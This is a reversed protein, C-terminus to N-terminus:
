QCRAVCNYYSCLICLPMDDDDDSNGDDGYEVGDGVVNAVLNVTM